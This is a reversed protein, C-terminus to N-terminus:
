ELRTPRSMIGYLVTDVLTKVIETRNVSDSPSQCGISSELEVNAATAFCSMEEVDIGRIISLLLRALIAPKVHAQICGARQADCLITTFADEYAGIAARYDPNARVASMFAPEAKVSALPSKPPNIRRDILWNVLSELRQAPDLDLWTTRVHMESAGIAIVITRVAIAEKSPFHHYLTRKSIGARDALEDMTMAEYGKEDMLAYAAILVSEDRAERQRERLGHHTQWDPDNINASM